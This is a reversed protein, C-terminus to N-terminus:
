QTVEIVRAGCDDCTIAYIEHARCCSEVTEEGISIEGECSPCQEVFVRLSAVLQSQTELPLSEWDALRAELVDFGALDALLAADSEWRGARRGDVTVFVHSELERHRVREPDIDFRAALQERRDGERLDDIRSRFQEDVDDALCLDTGDVCDAVVGAELLAREPDVDEDEVADTADRQREQSARQDVAPSAPAKEFKALLWEPFYRKTLTPTGPVLYGRLYIALLSVLGVVIGVPPSVVAIVIALGVAIAVNVVTCPPCRNEGTYEPRRFRDITRSLRSQM